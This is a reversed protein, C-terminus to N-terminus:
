SRKTEELAQKFANDCIIKKFDKNGAYHSVVIYKKGRIIEIRTTNGYESCNQQMKKEKCVYQKQKSHSLATKSDSYFRFAKIRKENKAKAQGKHRCPCYLV